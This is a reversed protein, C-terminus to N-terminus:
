SSAALRARRKYSPIFGASGRGSMDGDGETPLFLRRGLAWRAAGPRTTAAPPTTRCAPPGPLRSNPPRVATGAAHARDIRRHARIDHRCQGSCLADRTYRGGAASPRHTARLAPLPHPTCESHPAPPRVTAAPHAGAPASRSSAPPHAIPPHARPPAAPPPPPPPRPPAPGGGGGGGGRAEQELV